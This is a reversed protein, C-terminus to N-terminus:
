GDSLSATRSMRRVKLTVETAINRLLIFSIAPDLSDLMALDAATLEHCVVNSDAVVDASRPEGTLMAMEGFIAGSRISGIRMAHGAEHLRREVRVCGKVLLFQSNDTSGETLIRDGPGFAVRRATLALLDFQARTLGHLSPHDSLPLEREDAGGGGTLRALLRDEALALATELDGHVRGEEEPASFGMDRLLARLGRGKWVGALLLVVGSRALREDLRRLVLVGTSEVDNVRSLDLILTECGAALAEAQRALNEASGFFVPGHLEMVAIAGGHTELAEMDAPSRGTQSHVRDGRYSRRVVSVAARRLYVIVSIGMGVALAVLVDSTAVLLAVIVVIALNQVLEGRAASTRRGWLLRVLQLTWDDPRLVTVIVMGAMVSVPVAELLPGLGLAAALLGLGVFLNARDTRAGNHIAVRTYLPSGGTVTGGLAASLLNAGGQTLLERSSDHRHRLLSDAAAASLLSQISSVMGLTLGTAAISPGMARFVPHAILEGIGPLSLAFPLGPPPAKVTVGLPAPDGLWHALSWYALTGAALGILPGPLVSRREGIGWVGAAAAIGLALAWPNLSAAGRAFATLGAGDPLGLLSPLQQLLIVLAFGNIFGAIVPQPIFKLLDGLRLAGLLLQALGAVALALFVIATMAAAPVTDGGAATQTAQVLLGGLLAAQTARPANVQLGRGGILGRFLAAAITAGFAAQIGLAQFDAGLPQFVILGCGLVAPMVFLAGVLGGTAEDRWRIGTGTRGAGSSRGNRFGAM